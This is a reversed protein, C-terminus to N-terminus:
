YLAIVIVLQCKVIENLVCNKLREREWSSASLKVDMWDL